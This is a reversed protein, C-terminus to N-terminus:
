RSMQEQCYSVSQNASCEEVGKMYVHNLVVYSILIVLVAVVGYMVDNMNSYKKM